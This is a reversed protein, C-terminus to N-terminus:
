IHSNTSNLYRSWEDKVSIEKKYHQGNSYGSITFTDSFELWEGSEHRFNDKWCDDCFSALYSSTEFTASKGCHTCVYRSIYAYKSIIDDVEKSGTHYCRLENYKEKVQLFYFDELAKAGEKELAAKIDNCMQYFLPYWGDPIELCMMPWKAELDVTGDFTRRRLFPYKTVILEEIKRWAAEDYDGRIM